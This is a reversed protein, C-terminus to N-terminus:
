PVTETKGSLANIYLSGTDTEIQWVPTLTSEGSVTVDMLYGPSLADLRSCIFGESRVIEVFRMLVSVADMVNETSREKEKSFLMTGTVMFLSEGSFDCVLRANYVPMGDWLCCGETREEGPVDRWFGTAVGATKMFNEATKGRDGKLSNSGGTLLLDMEGTGRLIAQGHESRYFRISGGLDEVSSSGFLAKMQEAERTFDRTVTCVAPVNQLLKADASVSIGNDNLLATVTKETERSSRRAQAHDSIVVALLFVNLLVLIVIIINEIKRRDM